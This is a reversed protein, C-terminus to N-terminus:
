RRYMSVFGTGADDSCEISDGDRVLSNFMMAANLLNEDFGTGGSSGKMVQHQPSPLVRKGVRVGACHRCYACHSHVSVEGQACAVTVKDKGADRHFELTKM